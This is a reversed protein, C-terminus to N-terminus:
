IKISYKYACAKLALIFKENDEFLFDHPFVNDVLHMIDNDVAVMEPLFHRCFAYASARLTNEDSTDYGIMALLEAVDNTKVKDADKLDYWLGIGKQALREWPFAIGPDPKRTPAIDSHGVVNYPKINYKKIINHCLGIISKIQAEGYPKQGLAQSSIEIGISRSNFGGNKERWFGKGAHWASKDEEVCQIIGGREGIIYHVSLKLDDLLKVMQEAPQASCHLILMDPKADRESWHSLLKKRM